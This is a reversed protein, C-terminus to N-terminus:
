CNCGSKPEQKRPSENSAASHRCQVALEGLNYLFADGHITLKAGDKRMGGHIFLTRDSM